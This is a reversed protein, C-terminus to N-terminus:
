KDLSDYYEAVNKLVLERNDQFRLRKQRLFKKLRQKEDGFLTFVSAKTKVPHFIGEKLIFYRNREDFTREIVTNEIEEHLIKQRKVIVKSNGGYLTEYFGSGPLSNGVYANDINEFYHGSITFHHIKDEVLQLAQGNSYHETILQGNYLDLMLPIDRFLEGDYYVDGTLWDVSLFYPHQDFTQEPASYKSGNYLRAQAGIGNRYLDISNQIATSLFATDLGSQPFASVFVVLPFATLLLKLRM